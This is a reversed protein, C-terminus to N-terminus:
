SCGWPGPSRAGLIWPRRMGFRSTTRDSLRGFFPNAVLAVFAGVGLVLSLGGVAGEPNVQRIKLALTFTIPTLLAMWVGIYAFTYAAIFGFGVPRRPSPFRDEVITESARVEDGASGGPMGCPVGDTTAKRGTIKLLPTLAIVPAAM